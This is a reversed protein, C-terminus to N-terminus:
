SAVPRLGRAERRAGRAAPQLAAVKHMPVLRLQQPACTIEPASPLGATGDVERRCGGKHLTESSPGDRSRPFAGPGDDSLTWPLFGRPTSAPFSDRAIAIQGHSGPANRRPCNQDRPSGTKRAAPEAGDRRCERDARRPSGRLRSARPSCHPTRAPCRRKEVPRRRSRHRDQVSRSGRGAPSTPHGNRRSAVRPSNM